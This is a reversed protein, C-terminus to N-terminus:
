STQTRISTPFQTQSPTTAPQSHISRNINPTRNKSTADKARPNTNFKSVRAM